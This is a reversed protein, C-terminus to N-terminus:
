LYTSHVARDDDDGCESLRDGLERNCVGEGDVVRAHPRMAAAVSVKCICAKMMNPAKQEAM